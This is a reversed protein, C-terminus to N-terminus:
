VGSRKSDVGSKATAACDAKSELASLARAVLKDIERRLSTAMRESERGASLSVVLGVAGWVLVVLINGPSAHGIAIAGCIIALAGLLSIRTATASLEKAGALERSIEDLQENVAFVRAPPLPQLIGVLLEAEWIAGEERLVLSLRELGWKDEAAEVLAILRAPDVALAASVRRLKALSIASVLAALAM